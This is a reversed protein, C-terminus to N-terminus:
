AFTALVTSWQDAVAALSFHQEVVQRGTTGFAARLKEDKILAEIAGIWDDPASVGFGAAGFDLVERNMGVDSVVVPVGCSMYLLMKYSCKGKSWETNDLPMIGINMSAILRVEEDASWPSYELQSPNISHFPPPADSVVRLLWDPHKKLLAALVPELSAFFRYGSSSGSWGIVKRSDSERPRPHFRDIDVGTPIIAVPKGFQSFYEAIFANGCVIFDVSSGAHRAAIGKRYVWIADDVDLISPTKVFREVTPVTSVLERQLIRLDYRSSRSLALAREMMTAAFWFPRVPRLKPPYAGFVAPFEDVDVNREALPGILQRIRFRASPVNMGGTLAAVNLASGQDTRM